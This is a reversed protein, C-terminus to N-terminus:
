SIPERYPDGALKPNQQPEEKRVLTAEVRPKQVVASLKDQPTGSVQTTQGTEITRPTQVKNNEETKRSLLNSIEAALASTVEPAKFAQAPATQSSSPALTTPRPQNLNQPPPTEKKVEPPKPSQNVMGSNNKNLQPLFPNANKAMIMPELHSPATPLNSPILYTKNQDGGKRTQELGFAILSKQIPELIIQEVDETITNAKDEPVSLSEGLVSSFEDPSTMGLTLLFIENQLTTVQTPSLDHIKGVVDVSKEFNPSTIFDQVEKPLTKFRDRIIKKDEDFM